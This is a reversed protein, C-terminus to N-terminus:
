ASIAIFEFSAITRSACNMIAKPLFRSGYLPSCAPSAKHRRAKENRRSRTARTVVSHVRCLRVAQAPATISQRSARTVVGHKQNCWSKETRHEQHQTTRKRTHTDTYCTHCLVRPLFRPLMDCTSVVPARNHSLTATHKRALFSM